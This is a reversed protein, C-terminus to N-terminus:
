GTHHSHCLCSGDNRNLHLSRVVSEIIVTHHKTDQFNAGSWVELIDGCRCYNWARLFRRCCLKLAKELATLGCKLQLSCTRELCTRLLSPAGLVPRACLVLILKVVSGGWYKKLQVASSLAKTVENGYFSASDLHRYGLSLALSAM